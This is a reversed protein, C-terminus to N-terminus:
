YVAGPGLAPARTGHGGRSSAARSRCSSVTSGLVADAPAPPPTASGPPAPAAHSRRVPPSPALPTRRRRIATAPTDSMPAAATLVATKWVTVPVEVESAIVGPRPPRNATDVGVGVGCPGSTTGVAAAVGVIVSRPGVDASGADGTPGCTSRRACRAGSGPGPSSPPPPTGAADTGAGAAAGTAPPGPPPADPLEPFPDPEERPGPQPAGPPWPEVLVGGAGGDVVVVAGDGVGGGVGRGVRGCGGDDHGVGVRGVGGGRDAVGGGDDAGTGVFGDARSPPPDPDDDAGAALPEDEHGTGDVASASTSGM